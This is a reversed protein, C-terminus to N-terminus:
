KENEDKEYIEYIEDILFFYNKNYKDIFEIHKSTVATITATFHLIKKDKKIGIYVKKGIWSKM